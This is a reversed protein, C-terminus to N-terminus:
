SGNEIAAQVVSRAWEPTGALARPNTVEPFVVLGHDMELVLVPDPIEDGPRVQASNDFVQLRALLPLLRVLNARSAVWCERIRREPIDHGGHAVRLRVREIHQEQSALGVFIMMVDHTCSARELLAPVTRGGLTTEFAHNRGQELAAELLVRGHRWARFSAQEAALGLQGVLERAYSDPNFWTLGQAELMAGGVSSKGAGNVGALVLIFPRVAPSPSAM